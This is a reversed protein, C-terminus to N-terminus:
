IDQLSDLLILSSGSIFSNYPGFRYFILVWPTLGSSLTSKGASCKDNGHVQAQILDKPCFLIRSNM